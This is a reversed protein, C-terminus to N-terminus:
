GNRGALTLDLILNDLKEQLAAVQQQPSKGATTLDIIKVSQREQMGPIGAKVPSGPNTPPAQQMSQSKGATTLDIVKFSSREQIGPIGKTIAGDDPKTGDVFGAYVLNKM